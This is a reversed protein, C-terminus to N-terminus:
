KCFTLAALSLSMPLLAFYSIYLIRVSASDDENEWHYSIITELKQPM